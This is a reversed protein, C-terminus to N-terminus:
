PRAGLLRRAALAVINVALALGRGALAFAGGVMLWANPRATPAM